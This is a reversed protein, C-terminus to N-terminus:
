LVATSPENNAINGNLGNLCNQVNKPAIRKHCGTVRHKMQCLSVVYVSSQAPIHFLDRHLNVLALHKAASIKAFPCMEVRNKTGLNKRPLFPRVFHARRCVLLRKEDLLQCFSLPFSFLQLVRRCFLRCTSFYERKKFSPSVQGNKSPLLFSNFHTTAARSFYSYASSLSLAFTRCIKKRLM